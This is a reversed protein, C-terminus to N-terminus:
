GAAAAVAATYDRVAAALDFGPEFREDGAALRQEYLTRFNKLTSVIPNLATQGLGCRNRKM